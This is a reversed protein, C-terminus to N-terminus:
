PTWGKGNKIRQITSPHVGLLRGLARSSESSSRIVQVQEATLKARPNSDCKHGSRNAVLDPAHLAAHVSQTTLLLNEPKNNAKDEDLHHGVEGPRLPRGITREMVVQHELRVGNPTWVVIYGDRRKRRGGSWSPNKDGDFVGPRPKAPRSLGLRQMAVKVPYTSCGHLAAIEAITKGDGHLQRLTIDSFVIRRDDNGGGKRPRGM